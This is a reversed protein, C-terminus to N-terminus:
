LSLLDELKPQKADTYSYKTKREIVRLGNVRDAALPAENPLEATVARYEGV